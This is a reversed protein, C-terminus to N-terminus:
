NINSLKNKRFLMYASRCYMTQTFVYYISVGAVSWIRALWTDGGSVFPDGFARLPLLLFHLQQALENGNFLRTFTQLISVIFKFGM